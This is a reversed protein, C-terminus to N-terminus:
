GHAFPITGLLSEHPSGCRFCIRGSFPNCSCCLWRRRRAFGGCFGALVQQGNHCGLYLRASALAGACLIAVMLPVMMNGVGAVNMVVLLAVAAGM